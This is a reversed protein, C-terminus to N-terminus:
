LNVMDLDWLSNKRPIRDQSLNRWTDPGPACDLLPNRMIWQGHLRIQQLADLVVLAQVKLVDDARPLVLEHVALGHTSMTHTLGLWTRCHYRWSHGRNCGHRLPLCWIADRQRLMFNM